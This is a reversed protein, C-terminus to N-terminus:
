SFNSRPVRFFGSMTCEFRMEFGHRVDREKGTVFLFIGPRTGHGTSPKPLRHDVIQGHLGRGACLHRIQSLPAFKQVKSPSPSRLVLHCSGPRLCTIISLFSVQMRSSQPEHPSLLRHRPPPTNIFSYKSLMSHIFHPRRRDQTTRVFHRGSWKQITRRRSPLNSYMQFYAQM